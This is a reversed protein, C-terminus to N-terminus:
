ARTMLVNMPTIKVSKLEMQKVRFIANSVYLFSVAEIEGLDVATTVVINNTSGSHFAGRSPELNFQYSGKKGMVSLYFKGSVSPAVKKPDVRTHRRMNLQINYEFLCYPPKAATKFYMRTPRSANAFRQFYDMSEFGAPACKSGDVGCDYCHGQEFLEYTPCHFGVPVCNGQPLVFDKVYSISMMHNCIALKAIGQLGETKFQVIRDLLGCGPMIKGGNPYFDLHGIPETFGLGLSTVFNRADSHISEVFQADSTDLRVSAPMNQFYPEAADMATIRSLRGGHREGAYGSIHAGLSHGYLHFSEQNVGFRDQLTSVVSKNTM